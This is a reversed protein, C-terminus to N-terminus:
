DAVEEAKKREKLIKAMQTKMKSIVVSVANM